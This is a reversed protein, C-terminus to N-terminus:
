VLDSFNVGADSSISSSTSRMSTPCPHCSSSSTQAIARKSIPVKGSQKASPSMISSFTVKSKTASPKLGSPCSASPAPQKSHMDGQSGVGKAYRQMEPKSRLAVLYSPVQNQPLQLRPARPSSLSEHSASGALKGHCTSLGAVGSTLTTAQVQRRRTPMQRSPTQRKQSSSRQSGGRNSKSRQVGTGADFTKPKPRSKRVLLENEVRQKDAELKSLRTNAEEVETERARWQAEAKVALADHETAIRSTAKVCAMSVAHDRETELHELENKAQRVGELARIIAVYADICRSSASARRKSAKEFKNEIREKEGSRIKEIQSEKARLEDTVDVEKKVAEDHAWQAEEEKAKATAEAGQAEKLADSALKFDKQLQSVSTERAQL